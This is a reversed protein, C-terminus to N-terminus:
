NCLNMHHKPFIKDKLIYKTVRSNLIMNKNSNKNKLIKNCIIIQNQINTTFEYHKNVQKTNM